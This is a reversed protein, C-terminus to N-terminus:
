FGGRRGGGGGAGGFPSQTTAAPAAGGNRSFSAVIVQDGPKLDGGTVETYTGDTLGLTVQVPRPKDSSDIVWVTQQDAVAQRRAVGQGAPPRQAKRPQADPPHFRLAANPIRLVGNHRDILIKVNATMGPFLKLDPNAATIVVDYTVVNQVNIPAKRISSVTGQFVHGPYADVTFNAQQGVQVRGVDAEAVNTDVQMQTLDQAIDFLTPAQMSAAVTQGVDVHRAVVVGEVPARIVTNELDVEAQKLAAEAQRVQAESSTLQSRAVEVQAQLSTVNTQSAVTQAQSADLMAQAQDYTAQATDGDERSLIGEKVLELRRDLKVKADKVASDSKVVNAKADAVSAKASAVDAENKRIQAQANLVAAQSANLNARAQDVRAQFLQPDIQAVVQGKQVRTNFDAFLSKINGSVQSGVQVTVVANPTGTASITYAIDGREVPATRYQVDSNGRTIWAGVGIAAVASGLIISIKRGRM